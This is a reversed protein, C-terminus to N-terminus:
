DDDQLIQALASAHGDVGLETVEFLTHGEGGVHWGSQRAYADPSRDLLRTLDDDSIVTDHAAVLGLSRTELEPAGPTVDDAYVGAYDIPRRFKGKEMVVSELKRKARARTLIHQEITEASVLRFVLM